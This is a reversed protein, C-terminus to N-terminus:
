DVLEWPTLAEIMDDRSFGLEMMQTYAFSQAFDRQKLRRARFPPQTLAADTAAMVDMWVHIVADSAAANTKGRRRTELYLHSHRGVLIQDFIMGLFPVPLRIAGNEPTAPYLPGLDLTMTAAAAQADFAASITDASSTDPKKHAQFPLFYQYILNQRAGEDQMGYLHGRLSPNASADAM